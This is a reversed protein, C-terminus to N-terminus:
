WSIFLTESSMRGGLQGRGLEGGGLQSGGLQSGGSQGSELEERIESSWPRRTCKWVRQIKAELQM